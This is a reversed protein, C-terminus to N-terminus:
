KPTANMNLGALLQAAFDPTGKERVFDKTGPRWGAVISGHAEENSQGSEKGHHTSDGQKSGPQNKVRLM